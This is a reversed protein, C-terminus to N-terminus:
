GSPARACPVHRKVDPITPLDLKCFPCVMRGKLLEENRAAPSQTVYTICGLHCADSTRASRVAAWSCVRVKLPTPHGDSLLTAVVHDLTMFFDTTFSNWHKKTKLGEADFDTSIVHMHLHRGFSIACNQVPFPNASLSPSWCPVSPRVGHQAGLPLGDLCCAAAQQCRAQTLRPATEHRNDPRENRGAGGRGACGLGGRGAGGRGKGGGVCKQLQAQAGDAMAQLIPMHGLSVDSIANISLKRPLVLWHLRAQDGRVRDRKSRAVVFHTRKRKAQCFHPDPDPGQPVQRAHDCYRCRLLRHRRPAAGPPGGRSPPRAGMGRSRWRRRRRWWWFQCRGHECRWGFRRRWWWFVSFRSRCWRRQRGSWWRFRQRRQRGHRRQRGGSRGASSAPRRQSSGPARQPDPRAVRTLDPRGKEDGRGAAATGALLPGLKGFAAWIAQYAEVLLRETEARDGALPDPKLENNFNPSM